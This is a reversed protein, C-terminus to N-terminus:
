RIVLKRTIVKEKGLVQVAYIGPNYKKIDVYIIQNSKIDKQIIQILKGSFDVVKVDVRETPFGDIKMKVYENGSAPNPYLSVEPILEEKGSISTTPANVEIECTATYGGDNTTATITANGESVATVLGNEDVNAVSTNDSSWTVSKDTADDPSVTKTLQGTQGEDLTLSAPSISVAAVPVSSALGSYIEFGSVNLAGNSSFEFNIAGDTISMEYPGYKVWEGEATNIASEVVNGEISISADSATSSNDEYIYVYISYDDSPVSSFTASLTEGWMFSTLMDKKDDDVLPVPTVGGAYKNGNFSFDSANGGEFDVGDITRPDGNLNIARYFTLPSPVNVTVDCTASYDGENTTVTIKALGESVATVLGNEDVTAVSTNDSNWNVSKDTTDSLFVIELLQSTQGENLILSTPKVSVGYIILRADAWNGHDSGIGNGGDTVVLKLEYANTVDVEVFEPADDVTLVGSNYVETGDLYVIFECSGGSTKEDDIGIYSQFTNYAGALKYVIESHAHAGIGKEYEQGGITLTNGDISVDLKPEAYSYDVSVWTLDSLYTTEKFVPTADVENSYESRNEDTDVAEVVYYYSTGNSVTNDVYESTDVLSNTMQVYDTGSATSRFVHYGALDSESNSEWNLAVVENAAFAALGTPANPIDVPSANVENSYGSENSGDDVATVVYYYTTGNTLGNDTYESASVLSSNVQAYGSALATSRYINYGALDGDYNDEWNLIVKENEANAILSAPNMPPFDEALYEENYGQSGDSEYAGIDPTTGHFAYGLDVGTDELNGGSSPVFYPSPMDGSGAWQPSEFKNNEITGSIGTMNVNQLINNSIIGSITQGGSLDPKQRGSCDIVNNRIDASNTSGLNFLDYSGGNAYVSNNVFELNQITRGKDNYKSHYLAGVEGYIINHHIKVNNVDEDAYYTFANAGGYEYNSMDIFNNSYIANDAHAEIVWTKPALRNNHVWISYDGLVHQGPVASIAQDFDCNRIEAEQLTMNVFEVAFNPTGGGWQAIHKGRVTTNEILVNKVIADYKNDCDAYSGWLGFFKIGYGREYNSVFCDHIHINDAYGQSTIGGLSHTAEHGCEYVCVNSIEINATNVILSIGKNEARNLKLHHLHVNKRWEIEIFEGATNGPNNMTFHAIEQGGGSTINSYDITGACHDGEGAPSKLRIPKGANGNLITVDIGAGIISVGPSVNCTSNIDYTGAALHIIDGVSTVQGTAHSLTLWPNSESGNNGDNGEPSVHYDTANVAVFAVLTLMLTLMFSKKITFNLFKRM